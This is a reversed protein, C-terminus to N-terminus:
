KIVKRLIDPNEKIKDFIEKELAFIIEEPIREAEPVNYRKTLDDM